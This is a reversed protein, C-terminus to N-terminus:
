RKMRQPPPLAYRGACVLVQQFIRHPIFPPKLAHHDRISARNVTDPYKRVVPRKQNKEQLQLEDLFL